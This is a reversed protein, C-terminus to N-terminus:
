DEAKKFSKFNTKGVLNCIEEYLSNTIVINSMIPTAKGQSNVVYITKKGNKPAYNLVRLLGSLDPNGDENIPLKTEPIVYDNNYSLLASELSSIKIITIKIGFDDKKAIGEIKVPSNKVMADVNSDIEQDRKPFYVCGLSGSKDEIEAVYFLNGAKSYKAEVVNLIGAITVRMQKKDSLKDDLENIINSIMTVKGIQKANFQDMPHGSIYRGAYEKENVLKTLPEYEKRSLKLRNSVDIYNREQIKADNDRLADFISYSKRLMRVESMYGAITDLNQIIDRRVVGYEDLLGCYTLSEVAKKNLDHYKTMRYIFNSMSTFNGSKNREDIIQNGIKGVGKLSSLGTRIGNHEMSFKADSKNLSPPLIHIKKQGCVFLYQQIKEANDIYSNLTACMYEAPYYYALWATRVSNVSYSVAHSKNFAYESFKAMTQWLKRAKQEDIGNAVCGKIGMKANGHIFYEGYEDVIEKKKKGMAKRITDSQGATFGALARVIRMVQEQYLIIGYTDELFPKVEDLDYSIKSEDLINECYKPVFDIPGPRGLANMDSLRSFATVGLSHLKAEDDGCLAAKAEIDSLGNTVMGTFLPSELQFTAQTNGKALFKYVDVDDIPIDYFNLKTGHSKEIYNIANHIVGLTRLGLFDMKLLGMDECSPAEIQTVLEMNGTKNNKLRCEPIYRLIPQDSIIVGCAHQSMNTKLGEWKVAIDWIKRADENDNIFRLLENNQQLAKELTIGPKEPIFDAMADCFGLPIDLCRGVSKIASKAAATGFTIIGSVQSAGYKYRVYEIVEQRVDDEIDTDIDPMSVRDPSLFREFLLGYKMPDIDTIKLCYCVLSGAASGRGPGIYISHDKLFQSPITTHDFKNSPFYREINEKVNTDKAWAIFDSVILFYSPWGMKLITDIEMQMRQLYEKNRVLPTGKFREIFGERCRQKFYETDNDFGKPLPFHPLHYSQKVSEYSVKDAIELTNDLYEADFLEVMEDSTHVYYGDGSFRMHTEDSMKKKTQNCLWVEHVYADEKDLYHADCGVVIKVQPYLENRFRVMLEMINREIDFHHDQYEFYFDDGFLQLMKDVFDIAITMNNVYCRVMNMVTEDSGHIATLAKVAIPDKRFYDLGKSTVLDAVLTCNGMVGLCNKLCRGITGGICASTVILGEHNQELDEIMLHPKKYIHDYAMSSLKILNALGVDNKALVIMHDSQLRSNKPDTKEDDANDFMIEDLKDKAAFKVRDGITEVYFEEGIIPKKGAKEMAARFELYGFMNGHDTIASCYETKKALDKIRVMGDLLSNETHQHLNAYRVITFEDDNKVNVKFSSRRAFLNKPLESEGLKGLIINGIHILGFTVGDKEMKDIDAIFDSGIFSTVTNVLINDEKIVVQKNGGVEKLCVEVSKNEYANLDTSFKNIKFKRNKNDIAYLTAMLGEKSKEITCVFSDVNSFKLKKFM